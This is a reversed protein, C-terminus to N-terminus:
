HFAGQYAAYTGTIFIIGLIIHKIILIRNKVLGYQGSETKYYSFRLGGSIMIIAASALSLWFFFIKVEQIAVAAESGPGVKRSLLVITALSSIWLGTFM